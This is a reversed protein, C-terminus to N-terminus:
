QNLRPYVMLEKSVENHLIGIIKDKMFFYENGTKLSFALHNWLSITILESYSSLYATKPIKMRRLSYLM